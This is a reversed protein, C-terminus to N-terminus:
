SIMPAAFKREPHYGVLSTKENVTVHEKSINSILSNVYQALFIPVHSEYIHADGFYTTVKGPSFKPYGLKTNVREVIYELLLAYSSINFPVGLFWDASRQYTKICIKDNSDVYFQTTLGHCPFLVGVESDSVNYTSMLIRRSNPDNVLTNITKEIQDVGQGEYSIIEGNEDLTGEMGIYKAGFHRWQFGYMPGMDGPKLYTKNNDELFKQSTNGTWIMIGKAELTSTDTKGSLFFDLEEKIGKWWVQKSKLIPFGKDSSSTIYNCPDFSSRIEGNRGFRIPEKLINKGISLYEKDLEPMSFKDSHTTNLYIDLNVEYALNYSEKKFYSPVTPMKFIVENMESMESMECLYSDGITSHSIISIRDMHNDTFTKIIESGGIVWVKETEALKLVTDINCSTFGDKTYLGRTLVYNKRGPLCGPFSDATKRGMVVSSGLTINKFYKMDPSCVWPLKGNLAFINRSTNAFIIGISM